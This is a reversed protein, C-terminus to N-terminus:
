LGAAFRRFLSHLLDKYQFSMEIMEPGAFRLLQDQALWILFLSFSSFTARM